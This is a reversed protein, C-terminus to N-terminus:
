LLLSIGILILVVTGLSGLIIGFIARGKGKKGKERVDKLGLFGFLLAFPAPFALVSFLGLYGAVVCKDSLDSTPLVWPSVKAAPTYEEDLLDDLDDDDYYESSSSIPPPSKPPLPPPKPAAGEAEGAPTQEDAM